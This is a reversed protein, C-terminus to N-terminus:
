PAPMDGSAGDPPRPRRGADRRAAPGDGRHAPRRPRARAPAPGAAADPREIAAPPSSRSSCPTSRTARADGPRGRVGARRRDTEVDSCRFLEAYMPGSPRSRRRRAPPPVRRHRPRPHPVLPRRLRPPLHGGQRGERRHRRAGPRRQDRLRQLLALRYASFLLLRAITVAFDGNVAEVYACTASPRSTASSRWRTRPRSRRARRCRRCSAVPRGRGRPRAAAAGPRAPRARHQGARHRGRPRARQQTWESLRHAYILADDGLM